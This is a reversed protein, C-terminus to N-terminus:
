HEFVNWFQISGLMKFSLSHKKKKKFTMKPDFTQAQGWPLVDRINIFFLNVESVSKKKNNRTYTFTHTFTFHKQKKGGEKLTGHLFEASVSVCVTYDLDSLIDQGHCDLTEGRILHGPSLLLGKALSQLLGSGSHHESPGNSSHFAREKLSVPAAISAPAETLPWHVISLLAAMDPKVRESVEM